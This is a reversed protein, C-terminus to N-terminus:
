ASSVSPRADANSRGTEFCMAAMRLESDISEPPVISELIVPCPPILRAIESVSWVTAMSLAHHQARVDLESLHIQALRDGFDSLMRRAIGLTPDVQQAHGLDLCFSAAPLREFHTALETSTRGDSKRADMNEICAMAGFDSWCGHDGIADPHLVVPWRREICPRLLDAVVSERVTRLKSPAHVSIHEFASLDLQDLGAMLSPLEGDRLASLEVARVGRGALLALGRRFDGLALAGTSFGIHRMLVGGYRQAAKTLDSDSDFFLKSLANQFQAGIQRAEKFEKLKLPLALSVHLDCHPYLVLDPHFAM